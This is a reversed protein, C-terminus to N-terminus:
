RSKEWVFGCAKCRRRVRFYGPGIKAPRDPTSPPQFKTQEVPGKGCRACKEAFRDTGIVAM